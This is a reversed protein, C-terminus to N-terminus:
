GTVVATEFYPVDVGAFDHLCQLTVLAGGQGGRETRLAVEERGATGVFLGHHPTRGKLLPLSLHDLTEFGATEVQVGGGVDIRRATGLVVPLVPVLTQVCRDELVIHVLCAICSNIIGDTVSAISQIVTEDSM